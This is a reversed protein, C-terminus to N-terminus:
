GLRSLWKNWDIAPVTGQGQLAMVLRLAGKMIDEPKPYITIEAEPYGRGRWGRGRRFYDVGGGNATLVCDLAKIKCDKYKDLLKEYRGWNSVDRALLGGIIDFEKKPQKDQGDGVYAISTRKLMRVSKIKEIAYKINKPNVQPKIEFVAYVGEAPIYALRHEGFFTPTYTNDYVVCDMQESIKNDYSVVFGSAIKYRAPLYEQLLDRWGNELVDGKIVPHEAIDAAALRGQWYEGATQFAMGLNYERM